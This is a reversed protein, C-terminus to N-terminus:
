VQPSKEASSQVTPFREKNDIVTCMDERQTVWYQWLHINRQPATQFSFVRPQLIYGGRTEVGVEPGILKDWRRHVWSLTLYTLAIHMGMSLSKIGLFHSKRCHGHGWICSEVNLKHICEYDHHHKRKSTIVLHEIVTLFHVSWTQLLLHACNASRCHPINASSAEQIGMFRSHTLIYITRRWWWFAASYPLISGWDLVIDQIVGLLGQVM